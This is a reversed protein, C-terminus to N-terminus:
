IELEASTVGGGADLVRVTGLESRQRLEEIEANLAALFPRRVDADLGKIVELVQEVLHEQESVWAGEVSLRFLEHRGEALFSLLLLFPWPRSAGSVPFACLVLLALDPEVDSVAAQVALEWASPCLADFEWAQQLAEPGASAVVREAALTDRRQATVHTTRMLSPLALRKLMWIAPGGSAARSVYEAFLPEAVAYSGDYVHADALKALLEPDSPDLQAALEYWHVAKGYEGNQFYAAALEACFYTRKSYDPWVRSRTPVSPARRQLRLGHPLVPQRGHLLM